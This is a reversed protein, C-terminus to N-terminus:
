KDSATIQSKIVDEMSYLGPKQRVIFRIAWIVGRAFAKRSTASHKIELREGETAYIVTHEGVVDGGRLAMIGIEDEARPGVTGERGYILKGGKVERIIEALRRATGSPADKKHRHHMEIIEIDYGKKLHQTIKRSLEFMLNVGISMNPSFLIPFRKQYSQIEEREIDSFGTTGIIWPIKKDFCRKLSSITATPTSFDVVCDARGLYSKFDEVIKIGEYEKGIMPHDEKEVGCIIRIDRTENILTIIEQGMKGLAGLLIIKIM